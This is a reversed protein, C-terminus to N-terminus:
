YKFIKEMISRFLNKSLSKPQKVDPSYYMKISPTERYDLPRNKKISMDIKRLMKKDDCAFGNKRYFVHPPNHPDYVTTTAELSVRGECNLKKSLNKAFQIFKTGFGKRKDNVLLFEIFLTRIGKDKIPRAEMFGVYKSHKVDFMKYKISKAPKYLLVDPMKTIPKQFVIPVKMVIKFCMFIIKAM